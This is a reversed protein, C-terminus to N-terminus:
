APAMNYSTSVMQKNRKGGSPGHAGAVTNNHMQRAQGSHHAGMKQSSKTRTQQYGTGSNHQHSNGQAVNSVDLSDLFNNFMKRNQLGNATQKNARAAM